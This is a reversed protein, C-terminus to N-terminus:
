PAPPEAIPNQSRLRRSWTTVLRSPLAMLYPAPAGMETDM